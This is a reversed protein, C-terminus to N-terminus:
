ERFKPLVLLFELNSFGDFNLRQNVQVEKGFWVDISETNM